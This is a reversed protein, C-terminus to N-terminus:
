ARRPVDFPSFFMLMMLSSAGLISYTLRKSLSTPAMEPYDAEAIAYANTVLPSTAPHLLIGAVVAIVLVAAISGLLRFRKKRRFSHGDAEAVLDDDVNTLSDYLKERKM